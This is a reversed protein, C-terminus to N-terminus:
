IDNDSAPDTPTASMLVSDEVSLMDSLAPGKKKDSTAAHDAMVALLTGAAATVLAFVLEGTPPEIIQKCTRKQTYDILTVASALVTFAGAISLVIKNM